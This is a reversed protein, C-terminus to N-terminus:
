RESGRLCVKGWVSFQIPVSSPLHPFAIRTLWCLKWNGTGSWRLCVGGLSSLKLIWFPIPHHPVRAQDFLGFVRFHMWGARHPVFALLCYNLGTFEYTYRRNLTNKFLIYYQIELYFQESCVLASIYAAWLDRPVMGKDERVCM